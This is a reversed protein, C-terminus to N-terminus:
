RIDVMTRDVEAELLTSTTLGNEITIGDAGIFILDAHLTRLNAVAQPGVVIDHHPVYLGGILICQVQRWQGLERVISLSNTIVTLTGQELIHRPTHRAVQLVTTGSDFIVYSGPEILQAAAEGIRQKEEIHERAKEEYTREHVMLPKGTAGGYVRAILGQRELELLDRRISVESVAFRRSLESVRVAGSRTIEELIAQRREYPSLGTTNMNKEIHSCNHGNIRM